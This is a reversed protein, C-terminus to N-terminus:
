FLPQTISIVFDFGNKTKWQIRDGDYIFRKAFYFRFPFQPISFRFGWGISYAVDTWGLQSFNRHTPDETPVTGGLNVLGVGTGMAGADLFGDLWLFQEFIPMRLELWNEWMSTGEMGYLSTWGRANFTGDLYLWDEDVLLSQGPKPLLASFGSHGGLIWKFNWGSFVPINFLTAYAELKSDTKLYQQYESPFVGAWTFRQSLYYGKGPNYWFDLDNVYARAILKNGLQWLNLSDRIKKVAPRYKSDDWTKMNLSSSTGGGVGVDGLFTHFSYGSSFGLSFSWSDYPMLYATPISSLSGNWLNTIADFPDPISDNYIPGLIDQGTKLSKHAFSLDVGGSLRKGFLWADSFSFTLSQTDPSANLEVGFNQGNGLFNRDNWKILGSVPFTDPQGFGSLTVGFQIDATSQEEVSVVLKMLDDSSGPFMEPEVASFYQLNYLNRLGEVIKAKSFIDGVELPLERYLVFDKTKKNGKFVISEIHARDREAVKITYSILGKEEDRREVLEITNFIYGSEYYLDDIRQKDQLLKRYNLITDPKQTILPALKSTPFLRNGEFTIGGYTWERGESVVLTLVLWTRGTKADKELNRLVDQIKADVYGRGRYYDVIKGKDEELKSEQFTGAQLFGAEKLGMLGKLTQSAVAQNGSFRIERVAVQSGEVVSFVIITAKASSGPRNSSSIKADPYGRELYLRRVALEDIRLKSSNFIDNTKTTVVDLIESSRLGSNGTVKVSEVWPKETVVFKIVIKTKAPDTPLATPEIKEFWDLEYLKAQLELWLDETFAKGIYNRTVADLERRDAHSLGDWQVGAITKGWFWDQPAQEPAAAQTAAPESPGPVQAWVASAALALFLLTLPRKM